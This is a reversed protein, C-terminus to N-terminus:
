LAEEALVLGTRTGPHPAFEDAVPYGWAWALAGASTLVPWSPRDRAPIRSELLLRKLKRAGRRRHPRYSDGPLWGRVTLPWHLKDFDLVSWRNNTEETPAHWDVIKLRLRGMIEPIDVCASGAAGPLAVTYEFRPRPVQTGGHKSDSASLSDASFVLRDFSREVLVGPLSIQSGSQSRSALELVDEVHRATLQRRSGRLERYIRRVLRRSLALGAQPDSRRALFAPLPSLLDAISLTVAGPPQVAVLAAFREDELAAWFAEDERALSALRALRPVTAAGFDQELAPLLRHRIRARMRSTDQNSADERWSQGLSRLYERLQQRRVGLLPRIIRGAVPYISALGAPGTGRFLHSLVTEAQDDATHAVAVRTLRHEAAASEFFEYRLRRATEELNRGRAHATVDARGSVLQTGFQRALDAVFAEDLDAEAGRLQHHFHVAILEIGLKARLADLLRFMAVSDAGGSVGLGIREGPCVMSHRAITDILQSHLPQNM